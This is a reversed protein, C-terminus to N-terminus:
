TEVHRFSFLTKITTIECVLLYYRLVMIYSKKIDVSITISIYINWFVEGGM